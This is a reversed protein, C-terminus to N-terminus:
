GGGFLDRGDRARERPAAVVVEALLRRVLGDLRQLGPQLMRRIEQRQRGIAGNAMQPAIHAVTAHCELSIAALEHHAPNEPDYVPIPLVEFPLRTVHREGWQGGTQHPKIALNVTSSNLVACLYHAESEDQFERYYTVMDAAFGHVDLGGVTLPSTTDVVCAALHTGSTNYLMKHCGTLTQTSLTRQYDLRQYITRDSTPKKKAQWATEAGRLWEALGLYGRSVADRQTLLGIMGTDSVVTLPLVILELTLYGFPLLDRGLLTAYLFDAEVTGGFHMGKWPAKADKQTAEATELYPKAPDVVGVGDAAAPEVFWFCRPFISAGAKLSSWYPSVAAEPLPSYSGASLALLEGATAWPMNREPLEGRVQQMPIGAPRVEGERKRRALVCAPVKFLPKVKELDLGCTFGMRQFAAHQKAGRLVSKPMVFALMGEPKVYRDYCFEFFLSSTDMVTFLNVQSKELLRYAFCLDKVQAQYREDQIYRYALWPPNGVVFDFRRDSLYIPRYANRLIFGWITDRRARVLKVMLKLNSQWQAAALPDSGHRHTGLYARFGALLPEIDGPQQAYDCLTKLIDDLAEPARAVASPIAFAVEAPEKKPKRGGRPVVNREETSVVIKIPTSTKRVEERLLADAMYVPIVVGRQRRPLDRALALAYNVRATTVALPHVDVGMINAQAYDALEKGTKGHARAMQIATFLFTGSGCAPDLVSGEGRYGAQELTLHALWDPTYFEGLDHRTEPDVLGQYLEKLLDENIRSPDYISLPQLLGRLLVVVEDRVDAALVWSFFDEEVLNVFGRGRFVEGSVIDTPEM